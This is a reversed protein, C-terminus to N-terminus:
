PAERGGKGSYKKVVDEWSQGSKKYLLVEDISSGSENALRLANKIEHVNFGENLYKVHDVTEDKFEEILKEKHKNAQRTANQAQIEYDNAILSQDGTKDAEKLIVTSSTADTENLSYQFNASIDEWNTSENKMEIVTYISLDKDMAIKDANIIDQPSYGKSLWEKVQEKDVSKYVLYEKRPMLGALINELSTGKKTEELIAKVESFGRNNRNLFEYTALLVKSDYEKILEFVQSNEPTEGEYGIIKKYVFMTEKVKDWSGVANYLKKVTDPSLGSVDALDRVVSKDVKVGSVKTETNAFTVAGTIIVALICISVMIRFRYNLLKLM